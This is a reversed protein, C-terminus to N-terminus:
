PIARPARVRVNGLNAVMSGWLKSLALATIIIIFLLITETVWDQGSSFLGTPDFIVAQVLVLSFPTIPKSLVIRRCWYFLTLELLFLFAGLYKGSTFITELILNSNPYTGLNDVRGGTLVETIYQGINSYDYQNSLLLKFFPMLQYEFLNAKIVSDFGRHPVLDLQSAFILQDFGSLFRVALLGGAALGSGAGIVSLYFPALLVVVV